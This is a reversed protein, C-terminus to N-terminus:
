KIYNKLFRFKKNLWLANAVKLTFKKGRQLKNIHEQVRSFALHFRRQDLIFHLTDAMQKETSNRAGAYTMALATSISYPSFFLNGGEQRLHAYLDFVFANNGDAMYKMDDEEAAIISPNLLVIVSGVIGLVIRLVMKKLYM